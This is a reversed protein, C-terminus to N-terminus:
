QPSHTLFYGIMGHCQNFGSDLEKILQDREQSLKEQAELNKQLKYWTESLKAVGKWYSLLLDPIHEDDKDLLGRM